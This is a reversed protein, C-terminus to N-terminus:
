PDFFQCHLVTNLLVRVLLLKRLGQATNRLPLPNYSQGAQQRALLPQQKITAASVHPKDQLVYSMRLRGERLM